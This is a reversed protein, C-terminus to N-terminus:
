EAFRQARLRPGLLDVLAQAKIPVRQQNIRLGNVGAQYRRLRRGPYECIEVSAKLVVDLAAILPEGGVQVRAGLQGPAGQAGQALRLQLVQACLALAQRSIQFGDHLLVAVLHAGGQAKEIQTQNVVM